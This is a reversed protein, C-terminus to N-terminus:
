TNTKGVLNYTGQVVKGQKCNCENNWVYQLLDIFISYFNRPTKNIIVIVLVM